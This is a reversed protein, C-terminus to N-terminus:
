SLMTAVSTGGYMADEDVIGLSLACIAYFMVITGAASLLYPVTVRRHNWLNTLALKWYFGRSRKVM